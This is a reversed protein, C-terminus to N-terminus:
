AGGPEPKEGKEAKELAKAGGAEIYGKMKEFKSKDFQAMATLTKIMMALDANLAAPVAGAIESAGTKLSKTFDSNSLKEDEPAEGIFKLCEDQIIETIRERTIGKTKGRSVQQSFEVTEKRAESLEEQIIRSLHKRNIKM